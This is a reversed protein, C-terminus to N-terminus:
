MINDSSFYATSVRVTSLVSYTLKLVHLSSLLDVPHVIFSPWCRALLHSVISVEDVMINYRTGRPSVEMMINDVCQAGLVFIYVHDCRGRRRIPAEQVSQAKASGRKQMRHSLVCSLM